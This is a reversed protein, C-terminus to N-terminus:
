KSVEKHQSPHQQVFSSEKDKQEKENMIQISYKDLTKGSKGMTGLLLRM